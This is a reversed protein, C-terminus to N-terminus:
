KSYLSRKVIHAIFVFVLSFQKQELCSIKKCQLAVIIQHSIIRSYNLLNIITTKLKFYVSTNM